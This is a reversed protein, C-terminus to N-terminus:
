APDLQEITREILAVVDRMMTEDFAFRAGAAEYLAPLPVTGGLSLAHRYQRVAEAQDRLANRWVQVAGTQAMGYEVYYFPVQFIHLKRHWGTVREPELGSWDVGRMFRQWLAGWAADCNAPDTAAAHNQYVWHQFGDVVAMYPWFLILSELHEVRARAADEQTYFGGQSAALYPSALLEMGMSAVEAFEMGVDLQQHYPLGATEFVHFAHGGEHLTTQVDDHLGVANVFIFPRKAVPFETCYGGPAKGKRNGLDLLHEERMTEYDRGLQPDVRQFIAGCTAELQDTTTFPRLPSRGTTDVDLDWPRLADLGLRQRRREYIRVAAPVVVQEIAEGFRLSDEPTYDFRLLQRWRFARYDGFGANAALQRRLDMFTRWLENCTARDALQRQAALRWAKERVGRDADLYVPRLQTITVEKGDWPVTQAGVLQDYENSLKHEQTLLPLNAARFLEAQVRMNRLPVEFGRPQLGSELLMQKLQQEAAEGPPYITDLFHFLREQAGKDETNVSTAVQLRTGSEQLFDHLRTWDALWAEVNAASLSRGALERYYPEIQAWELQMFEGITKPLELSMKLWQGKEKGSIQSQVKVGCM